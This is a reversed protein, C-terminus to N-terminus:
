RERVHDSDLLQLSGDVDLWPGGRFVKRACLDALFRIGGLVLFLRGSTSFLAGCCGAAVHELFSQVRAVECASM